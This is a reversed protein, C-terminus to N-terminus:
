WPGEKVPLPDVNEAMLRILTDLLAAQRAAAQPADWLNVLCHPDAATDYLEGRLGAGHWTLLADRTRVSRRLGQNEILLADRVVRGAAAAAPDGLAPALSRGQMPSPDPAPVSALELLTPMLDISSCLLDRARPVHAGRSRLGVPWYFIAPVNTVCDYTTGKFLLRHDGLNEGHDATFLVITNDLEGRARLLDLLRGINADIQTVMGYYYARIRQWDAATFRNLGVAEHGEGLAYFKRRYAEPWRAVEAEDWVPLPMEAPDYMTDYPAPPNFPHHPHVYSTWLFFPQGAPRREALFEIARDTIWTTQHHEEPFPSRVTASQPYSASHLEDWVDYGHAALYDGYPGMRHDETLAVRDFGYWPYADDPPQPSIATSPDPDKIPQGDAPWEWQPGFHMKGAGYTAYGADRLVEMLTVEGEPLRQGNTRLRHVSPYRGTIISARNPACVPYAAYMHEFRVGGEALADVHPTRVVPNGYCGLADKRLQDCMLLLINPRNEPM